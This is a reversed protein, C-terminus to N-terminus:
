GCRGARARNRLEFARVERRGLALVLPSQTAVFRELSNGVGARAVVGASARSLRYLGLASQGESRRHVQRHSSFAEVDALLRNREAPDALDFYLAPDPLLEHLLTTKGTQRAGFLVHVFTKALKRALSATPWRYKV